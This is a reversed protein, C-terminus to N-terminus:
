YLSLYSVYIYMYACVNRIMNVCARVCIYIYTYGVGRSLDSIDCAHFTVLLWGLLPVTNSWCSCHVIDLRGIILQAKWDSRAPHRVCCKLWTNLAIHGFYFPQRKAYSIRLKRKKTFDVAVIYSNFWIHQVYKMQKHYDAVATASDEILLFSPKFMYSSVNSPTQTVLVQYSLRRRYIEVGSLWWKWDNGYLADSHSWCINTKQGKPIDWDNTYIDISRLVGSEKMWWIRTVFSCKLKCSFSGIM